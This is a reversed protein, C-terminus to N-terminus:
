LVKVHSPVHELGFENCLITKVLSTFTGDTSTYIIFALAMSLTPRYLIYIIQSSFTFLIYVSISSRKAPFASSQRRFASQRSGAAHSQPYNFSHVSGRGAGEPCHIPHRCCGCRSIGSCTHTSPTFFSRASAPGLTRLRPGTLACECGRFHASASAITWVSRRVICSRCLFRM